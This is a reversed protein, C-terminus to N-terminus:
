MPRKFYADGHADHFKIAIMSLRLLGPSSNVADEHIGAFVNECAPIQAVYECM